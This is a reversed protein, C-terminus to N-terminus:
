LDVILSYVTYLVDVGTKLAAPDPYFDPTHLRGGSDPGSNVGLRMYLAPMSQSYYAFDDTTMRKELRILSEEGWIGCIRKGVLESLEPDNVTMPYGPIINVECGAGYARAVSVAIREIDEKACMRWKEDFTRFIGELLVEKPIINMRGDCRINGFTLVSPISEPALRGNVQQLATILHSAALLLDSTLHPMAAHGGKGSLKIYVEDGSATYEGSCIGVKYLPIDPDAHLAFICDPRHISFFEDRCFDSAGGPLTEEGHQFLFLIGTKVGERKLRIALALVIATHMDHGCAHMVGEYESCLAHSPNETVPLADTDARFGIIKGGKNERSIDGLWAIIGTEGVPRFPIANEVLIRKIYASTGYERFSLEPHRHLYAYFAYAEEFISDDIPIM